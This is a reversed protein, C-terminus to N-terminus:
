LKAHGTLVLLILVLLVVVLADMELSRERYPPEIFDDTASSQWRLLHSADCLGRDGFKILATRHRTFRNERGPSLAASKRQLATDFDRQSVM